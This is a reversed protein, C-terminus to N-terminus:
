MRMYPNSQKEADLTTKPGHGPYVTYSEEMANLCSLSQQMEEWSGGPFDTRGISGWFLTDGTFLVDQIAYCVSGPTHGPTVIVLFEMSGVVITDGDQVIRDAPANLGVYGPIPVNKQPEVLMEADACHIVIKCGYQQRLAEAAGIHDYHGHTLLICALDLGERQLVEMIDGANEGPDVVAAQKNGDQFIIYANEELMGTIVPIIHM